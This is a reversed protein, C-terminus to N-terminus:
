LVVDCVRGRKEWGLMASWVGRLHVGAALVVCVHFAGHSCGLDFKGPYKKEPWRSAFLCAGVGYVAGEGLWFPMGSQEWMREWGYLSLGHAIPAFGSLATLVFASTRLSRYKLGQLRPHLVLIATIFSLITIMCNYVIRLEPHCYFGVYIGSFFSGLVLVLIGVYDIRLWLSSVHFSHNMLTHYGTSMALTATAALVNLAFVVRDGMTAGPLHASIQYQIWVQLLLTLVAPLLHTYINITENHIYTWSYLCSFTNYSVPRYYRRVYPNDQYWMPLQEFTQLPARSLPAAVEKDELPELPRTFLRAPRRLTLISTYSSMEISPILLTNCDVSIQVDLNRFNKFHLHSNLESGIRLDTSRLRAFDSGRNVKV